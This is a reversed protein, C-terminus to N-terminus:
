GMREIRGGRKKPRAGVTNQPRLPVLARHCAEAAESVCHQVQLQATVLGGEEAGEELSQMEAGGGEYEEYEEDGFGETRLPAGINGLLTGHAFRM